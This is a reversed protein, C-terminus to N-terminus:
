FHGLFKDIDPPFVKVRSETLSHTSKSFLMLKLFPGVWGQYVLLVKVCKSYHDLKQNLVGLCRWFESHYQTNEKSIKEHQLLMKRVNYFKFVMSMISTNSWVLISNKPIQWIDCRKGHFICNPFIMNELFRKHFRIIGQLWPTLTGFTPLCTM